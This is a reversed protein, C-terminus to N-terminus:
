RMWSRKEGQTRIERKIDSLVDVITSLMALLVAGALILLRVTHLNDGADETISNDTFALVVGGIFWGLWM